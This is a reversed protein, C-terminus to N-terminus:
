AHTPGNELHIQALLHHQPQPTSRSRTSYPSQPVHFQVIRALSDLQSQHWWRKEPVCPLAYCNDGAKKEKQKQKIKVSAVNHSFFLSLDNNTKWDENETNQRYKYSSLGSFTTSRTARFLVRSEGILTASSARIRLSISFRRSLRQPRMMVSQVFHHAWSCDVALGGFRNLTPLWNVVRPVLSPASLWNVWLLLWRKMHFLLQTPSQAIWFWSDPKHKSNEVQM